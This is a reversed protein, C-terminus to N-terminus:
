ISPYKRMFTDLVLTKGFIGDCGIGNLYALCIRPYAFEEEMDVKFKGEM